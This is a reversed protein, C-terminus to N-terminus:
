KWVHGSPTISSRAPWFVNFNEDSLPVHYSLRASRAVAVHYTQM